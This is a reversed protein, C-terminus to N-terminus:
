FPPFEAERWAAARGGAEREISGRGLRYVGFAPGQLGTRTSPSLRRSGLSGSTGLAAPYRQGVTDLGRSDEIYVGRDVARRWGLCATFFEM